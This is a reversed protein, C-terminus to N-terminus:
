SIIVQKPPQWLKDIYEAEVSKFQLGFNNPSVISLLQSTNLPKVSSSIFGICSGCGIFPSCMGREETERDDKDDAIQEESISDCDDDICCPYVSILFCFIGLFVALIKM